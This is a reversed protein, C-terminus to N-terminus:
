VDMQSFIIVNSCLQTHETLFSAYGIGVPGGPIQGTKAGLLPLVGARLLSPHNTGGCLVCFSTHQTFLFISSFTVFASTNSARKNTAVTGLEKEYNCLFLRFVVSAEGKEGSGGGKSKLRRLCLTSM